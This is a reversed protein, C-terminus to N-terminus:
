KIRFIKDIIPKILSLTETFLTIFIGLFSLFSLIDIITERVVLDSENGEKKIIKSSLVYSLLCGLLYAVLTIIM